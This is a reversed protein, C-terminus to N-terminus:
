ASEVFIDDENVKQQKLVKMAPGIMPKPGCIYVKYGELEM